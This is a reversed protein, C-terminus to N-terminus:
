QKAPPFLSNYYQVLAVFRDDMSLNKNDREKLFSELESKKNAMIAPAEKLKGIEIFANNYSILYKEKTKIKQETTASGYPTSESMQKSYYKYLDATGSCFWLYWGTKLPNADQQPLRSSHVFRFNNGSANTLIVEAIQTTAIMEAGLEDKYLIEHSHLNLKLSLNKYEQGTVSILSGSLWDDSFYPSGEVLKVYKENVFPTGSVTFFSSANIRTDGNTVDVVRQATASQLFLISISLLVTRM